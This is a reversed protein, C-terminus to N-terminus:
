RADAATTGIMDVKVRLPHLVTHVELGQRVTAEMERLRGIVTRIIALAADPGASLLDRMASYPIRLVEAQSIARVSAMRSGRELAALEGQIAGPGVRALPIESTGSRKTVELEGSVVVFLDDARDGEVILFTGPQLSMSEAQTALRQLLEPPVEAFIPTARLADLAM